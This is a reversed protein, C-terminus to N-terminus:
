CAPPTSSWDGYGGAQAPDGPVGLDAPRVTQAAQLLAARRRLRGAGDRHLARRDLHARRRAGEPQGRLGRQSPGPAAALRPPLNRLDSGRHRQRAARAQEGEQGSPVRAHGERHHLRLHRAAGGRPGDGGHGRLCGRLSRQHHVDQRRQAGLLRRGDGGHHPHRRRGVRSGARHAVLLRDMRGLGPQASLAPAARRRRGQFYPQLLALHPRGRHDGGLWGRALARRHHHLLRHLGHRRRRAGRPLDGGHIGAQGTQPHSRPSLDAGRGM